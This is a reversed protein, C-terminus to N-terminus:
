RAFRTCFLRRRDTRTASVIMACLLASTVSLPEPVFQTAPLGGSSNYANLWTQLDSSSLGDRQWTLFDSGDVDGDLDFDGPLSDSIVSATLDTSSYEVEWALGEDLLPLLVEDFTDTMSSFSVLQFVDGLEAAEGPALLLEFAGDLIADTGLFITAIESAYATLTGGSLDFGQTFSVSGAGLKRINNGNADFGNDVLLAADSLVQIDLDDFAVTPVSIRHGGLRVDILPDFGSGANGIELQSGGSPALRYLNESFFTIGDVSRTESVFVQAAQNIANGFYALQNNAVSANNLWASDDTWEGSGELNWERAAAEPHVEQLRVNDVLTLSSGGTGVGDFRIVPRVYRTGEPAVFRGSLFTRYVRDNPDSGFITGEAGNPKVAYFPNIETQSDELTVSALTEDDAGYFEIALYTDADYIAGGDNDFRVDVTLQYANGTLDIDPDGIGTQSIRGNSGANPKVLIGAASNDGSNNGSGGPLVGFLADGEAQWGNIAQTGSGFGTTDFNPNTILNPRHHIVVSTVANGVADFTVNNGNVAAPGLSLYADTRLVNDEDTTRILRTGAVDRDILDFSYQDSVDDTGENNVVVNTIGTRPDYSASVNSQNQLEIIESGPRTFTTFQKFAFYQDQVDFTPNNGNFSAQALGWGSGNNDEIAQWYTWGAADLNHIDEIIQRALRTAGQAGGFETAYIKLNPDFNDIANRFAQSDAPTSTTNGFGSYTHTNVQDIFGRAQDTFNSNNWSLRSAQTSTEELGVLKIDVGRNEIETGFTIVLNNQHAGRTVNMGEQGSGGGWFFTGPENMPALTEFHIGLNNSFHDTVELLYHAFLDFDCTCMNTGPGGSSSGSTTMWWPASNAFAEIQTLGRDIAGDLVLRQTADQTFDFQWTSTNNIDSPADPVYGDMKAGPRTINQISTDPNSGAGINYRAFNLGLGNNQDFFLDLIDERGQANSQGGVENGWWALSTGWAEFRHSHNTATTALDIASASDTANFCAMGIFLTLCWRISRTRM